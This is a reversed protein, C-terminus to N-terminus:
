LVSSYFPQKKAKKERSYDPGPLTRGFSPFFLEIGSFFGDELLFGTEVEQIRSELSFSFSLLSFVTNCIFQFDFFFFFYSTCTARLPSFSTNILFNLLFYTIEPIPSFHLPLICVIRYCQSKRFWSSSHHSVGWMVPVCQAFKIRVGGKKTNEM